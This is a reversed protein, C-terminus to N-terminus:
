TYNVYSEIIKEIDDPSDSEYQYTEEIILKYKRKINSKNDLRKIMYKKTNKYEKM